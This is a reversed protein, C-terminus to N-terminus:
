TPKRAVIAYYQALFAYVKNWDQRFTWRSAESWGSFQWFIDSLSDLFTNAYFKNVIEFRHAQILHRVNIPVWSWAEFKLLLKRYVEWPFSFKSDVCLLLIGSPRLVRNYEAVVRGADDYSVHDMTSIDILITFTESRFPLNQISACVIPKGNMVPKALACVGKSLEVGFLEFNGPISKFENMGLAETWLDTKLILKRREISVYVAYDIIKRYLGRVLISKLSKKWPSYTKAPDM